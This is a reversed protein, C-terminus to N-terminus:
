DAGGVILEVVARATALGVDVAEAYRKIAAVRKGQAMLAEIEVRLAPPAQAALDRAQAEQKRARARAEYFIAVSEATPCGIINGNGVM